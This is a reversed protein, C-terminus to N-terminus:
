VGYIARIQHQFTWQKIKITSAQGMERLRAKNTLMASLKSKLDELDGAQFIQGNSSDILDTASGVMSSALIAKGAAMAENIALGWTEGPGSSPMCFLDCCQYIAPMHQQNQFSMFHITSQQDAAQLSAEATKLSQELIGAGVFLLHVGKLQMQTFATLLLKPNKKPSFKGSYLVLIDDNSIGLSTRIKSAAALQDAAFRENDIAHPVYVLQEHKLGYAQFYLKNNGGVYLAYHIKTYIRRLVVSKLMRRWGATKDLLTSDGRFLLTVKKSFYWIVRLHSIHAWGYILISTPEYSIIHELKHTFAYDYGDLLPIDWSISRNFGPDYQDQKKRNKYFVKIDHSQAMLKFLPAYYQVPHSCIIALRELRPIQM